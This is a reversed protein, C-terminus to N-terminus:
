TPGKFEQGKWSKKIMFSYQIKEFAKEAELSIIMHNKHKLKNRYHIINISKWVNFWGQMEPIFGGQNQHIITNIHEQIQNSLIKNLIKADM